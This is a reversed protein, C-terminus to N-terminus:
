SGNIDEKLREDPDEVMYIHLGLKHAQKIEMDMGDSIRNGVVWVESAFNMMQLGAEIGRSREEPDSDDLFQPFFLHAAYPIKGKAMVMLCIRKALETNAMIDGRYPSVVYVLEM